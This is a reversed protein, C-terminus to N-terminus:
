HVELTYIGCGKVINKGVQVMEGWVLWPLLPAWNEAYYVASGVMGGLAQARALRGSYGKLDWWTTHDELQMVTDAYPYVDRKLHVDPRGDAHQMCLDLVRLVVQKALPFFGADDVLHGGQMLRLPTHLRVALCNNRTALAEALRAAAATVQAHTVPIAPMQVMNTGAALLTQVDGTLPNVAEVRRISFRGREGDSTRIGVGSENGMRQVTMVLYPFYTLKDGFLMMEFSFCEGPAYVRKDDLPPRITYPRRIDGHEKGAAEADLLQCAPCLAKHLPDLPRRQAEPCFAHRLTGAFAGRLASGKFDHFAIVTEAQVTFRIRHATLPVTVHAAASVQTSQEQM